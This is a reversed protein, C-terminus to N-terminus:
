IEEPSFQIKKDIPTARKKTLIYYIDSCQLHEPVGQFHFYKKQAIDKKYEFCFRKEINFGLFSILEEFVVIDSYYIPFNKRIYAEKAELSDTDDKLFNKNKISCILAKGGIKLLRSVEIMTHRQDTMEFVGWMIVFDFFGGHFDILESPSTFFRDVMEPLIKKAEMIAKESIDCGWVDANYLDKILKMVRGLGCGIELVKSVPKIELYSLFEEIMECGAVRGKGEKQHPHCYSYLYDIYDSSEFFNKKM